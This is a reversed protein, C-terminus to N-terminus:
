PTPECDVVITGDHPSTRCRTAIVSDGYRTVATVTAPAEALAVRRMYTIARLPYHNVWFVESAAQPVAREIGVVNTFNYMSPVLQLVAWRAFPGRLHFKTMMLRAADDHLPVALLLAAGLGLAGLLARGGRSTRWVAALRGLAWGTPRPHTM